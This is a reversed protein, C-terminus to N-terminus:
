VTCECHNETEDPPLIKQERNCQAIHRALSARCEICSGQWNNTDWLDFELVTNGLSRVGDRGFAQYLERIMSVTPLQYEGADILQDIWGNGARLPIISIHRVRREIAYVVTKRTWEISEKTDIGPPHLLVFVRVDIGLSNCKAVARDFDELTMGKNMIAMSDPHITELGMAVELKGSIATSFAQMRDDCFRPHNEVILREFPSCRDAIANLDESPISRPDFFNSANYLKLWRRVNVSEPKLVQDLQYPIAGLPTNVLSTYQWLDCMSCRFPCEAGILFVTTTDVEGGLGDPESARIVNPTSWPSPRLTEPRLSEIQLKNPKM